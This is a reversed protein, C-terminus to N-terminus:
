PNRWRQWGDDNRAQEEIEEALAMAGAWDGRALAGIASWWREDPPRDWWQRDAHYASFAYTAAHYVAYAADDPPSDYAMDDRLEDLKGAMTMPDPLLLRNHRAFCAAAAWKRVRQAVIACAAEREREHEHLADAEAELRAAHPDYPEDLPPQPCPRPPHYTM